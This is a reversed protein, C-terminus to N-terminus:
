DGLLAPELREEEVIVPLPIIGPVPVKAENLWSILGLFRMLRIVLWSFDLEHLLLGQRASGPFAHHNNHWGEGMALIGVWWVNVSDDGTAFTKYGLKPIHCAVNLLLPVQLVLVAALASALAVQWGFCLLLVVRLAINIAFNLAHARKWNGGQELFRYIPDQTLDKCQEHPNVHPAYTEASMWGFFAHGLGYRPSHPDLETDVHRHHARHIAAWWIPSGELALFGALVWFYEVFKPCTFSRHSLLRHYGITVGLGHWVYLVLLLALFSIM